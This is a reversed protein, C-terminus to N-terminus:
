VETPIQKMYPTKTGKFIFTVGLYFVKLPSLDAGEKKALYSDVCRVQNKGGAPIQSINQFFLITQRSAHPAALLYIEMGASAGAPCLAARMARFRVLSRSM